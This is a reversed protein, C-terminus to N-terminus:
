SVVRSCTVTWIGNHMLTLVLLHFAVLTYAAALGVVAPPYLPLSDNLELLLEHIM